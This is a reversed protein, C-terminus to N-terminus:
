IKKDKNEKLFYRILNIKEADIFYFFAIYKDKKDTYDCFNYESIFVKTGYKQRIINPINIKNIYNLNKLDSENTEIILVEKLGFSFQDM